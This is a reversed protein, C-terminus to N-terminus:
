TNANCTVTLQCGSAGSGISCRRHPCARSPGANSSQVSPGSRDPLLRDQECLNFVDQRLPAVLALGAASLRVTDVWQLRVLNNGHEM